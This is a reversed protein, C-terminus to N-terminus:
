ESKIADVPRLAAPRLASLLGATVCLLIVAGIVQMVDQPTTHAPLEALQYLEKPLLDISLHKSLGWMIQNRYKVILLGLGLGLGSGILGQVLGIWVFIRMIRTWPFGLAKLVGIEHTKQFTLTILTSAVGFAAVVSIIMLLFFMMNKEVHLASFLQRNQEMWTVAQFPPGLRRRIAEATQPAAYPDETMVQVRHAGREVNYIERATRLGTLVYGADFQYMGVEFIGSVTGEVPLRIEDESVFNQPSYIVVEDGVTIGLRQAFDSGVVMRGYGTDFTGERISAPIRSVTREQVPDVGRLLPTLVRDQFQVFVLGELYPAAGTVGPVARVEQLVQEPADMVGGYNSVTVHANFSLIKDRWMEDFGTMVSLVVILIACGLTVGVVSILTVASLFSRKPRLYKFALFLSFPVHM